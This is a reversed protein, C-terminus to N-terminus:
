LRGRHLLPPEWRTLDKLTFSLANTHHSLLHLNKGDCRTFQGSNSGQVPGQNSGVHYLAQVRELLNNELGNLTGYFFTGKEQQALHRM